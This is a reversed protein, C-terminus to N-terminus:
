VERGCEARTQLTIKTVKIVIKLKIKLIIIIKITRPYQTRYTTREQQKVDNKYTSIWQYRKINCLQIMYLTTFYFILDLTKKSCCKLLKLLSIDLWTQIEYPIIWWNYILLFKLDNYYLFTKWRLNLSKSLRANVKLPMIIITLTIDPEITVILTEKWGGEPTIRDNPRTM